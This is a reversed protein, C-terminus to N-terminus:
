RHFMLRVFVLAAVGGLVGAINPLDDGWFSWKGSLRIAEPSPTARTLPPAGHGHEIVTFEADIIKDERMAALRPM